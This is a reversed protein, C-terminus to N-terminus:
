KQYLDEMSCNLTKSLRYIADANAKNIDKHGQEYMQISRLSVGSQKALESQTLGSQLRLKKLNLQINDKKIIQDLIDVVKTVDAEHFPHYLNKIQSFTISSFIEKFSKATWWQYFAIVWGAWYTESYSSPNYIKYEEVLPETFIEEFVAIVIEPGSKGLVYKSEGKSFYHGVNSHAFLLSFVGAKIGCFNEAYDFAEGLVKQARELIAERYAHITPKIKM